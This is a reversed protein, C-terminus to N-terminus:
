FPAKGHSHTRRQPKGGTKGNALPALPKGEAKKRAGPSERVQPVGPRPGDQCADCRIVGSPFGLKLASSNHARTGGAVCSRIMAATQHPWHLVPTLITSHRAQSIPPASIRSPRQATQPPGTRLCTSPEYFLAPPPLASLQARKWASQPFLPLCRVDPLPAREGGGGGESRRRKKPTHAM